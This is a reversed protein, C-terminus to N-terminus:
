PARRALETLMKTAAEREGVRLEALASLALRASLLSVRCLHPTGLRRHARANRASLEYDIGCNSCPVVVSQEVTM